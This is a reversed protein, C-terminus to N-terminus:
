KLYGIIMVVVVLVLICCGALLRNNVTRAAETSTIRRNIANALERLKKQGQDKSPGTMMHSMDTLLNKEADPLEDFPFLEGNKAIFTSIKNRWQLILDEDREIKGSVLVVLYECLYAILTNDIKHHNDGKAVIGAYVHRLDEIAGISKNRLGQTLANFFLKRNKRNLWGIRINLVAVYMLYFLLIAASLALVIQQRMASFRHIMEEM